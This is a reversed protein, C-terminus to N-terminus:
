NGSDYLVVDATAEIAPDEARYAVLHSEKHRGFTVTLSVWRSLVLIELGQEGARYRTPYAGASQELLSYTDPPVSASKLVWGDRAYTYGVVGIRETIPLGLFRNAWDRGPLSRDSVPLDSM